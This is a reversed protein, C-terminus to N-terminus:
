KPSKSPVNWASFRAVPAVVHVNLASAAPNGDAAATDSTGAAGSTTTPSSVPTTRAKSRAVPFSAQSYSVSPSIEPPGVIRAPSSPPRTSMPECSADSEQRCNASPLSSQFCEMASWIRQEGVTAREASPSRTNRAPQSPLSCTISGCVPSSFAATGIPPGVPVVGAAAPSRTNKPVSPPPNKAISKRLALTAQCECAATFPWDYRELAAIASSRTMTPERPLATSAKEMVSPARFHRCGMRPLTSAEGTTATVSVPRGTAM